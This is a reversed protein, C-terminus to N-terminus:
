EGALSCPHASTCSIFIGLMIGNRGEVGWDKQGEAVWERLEEAGRGRQRKVL